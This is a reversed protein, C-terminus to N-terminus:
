SILSRILQLTQIKEVKKLETNEEELQDRDETNDIEISGKDKNTSM